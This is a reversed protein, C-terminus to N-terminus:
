TGEGFDREGGPLPPQITVCLRVRFFIPILYSVERHIGPASHRMSFGHTRLQQWFAM